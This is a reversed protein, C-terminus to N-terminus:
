SKLSSIKQTVLRPIQQALEDALADAPCLGLLQRWRPLEGDLYFYPEAVVRELHQANCLAEALEMPNTVYAAGKLGRLPSMNLTSGDLMQVVPIGSSYADVSATTINGFFVDCDGLLESMPADTIQLRLSPFDSLDVPCAPHPKFVYNTEPPLSLVAISLWSLIKDNSSSLFDGCVLVNLAKVQSKIPSNTPKRTLLHLFRLAEVEIVQPAPYGGEFYAKKAVPGNVAVLDPIPLFNKGTHIYSRPDYFYRLDWFRVSSHPMGILKGHGAARWAYILSMEWPQNEQIYVGLKQHSIGRLKKEYLSIRLCNLMAGRGRLSDIWEHKFLPWLDLASGAPRFYCSATSLHFSAEWTRFYDKLAKIFVSLNLNAEILAHSQTESSCKNFRGILEQARTVSPILEHCYINHLWNTKLNSQALKGVLSTWYNSIFKGTTFAQRDLHVLIDVFCIGGNMDSVAVQKKRLLPLGKFLYWMFFIFARLPCPLSHYLLRALSRPKGTRKAHNWKFDLILNQCFLQLTYALEKNSSVLVISEAKYKAALDEFVLAKIANDIQSTGSANFKQALSTMWWYSLGPRLELHDIVRKGNIFTEGLEYIWALYRSKLADAQEEVLKPISITSPDTANAFSSWLVTTWDGSPPSGETDWVLLAHQKNQQIALGLSQISQEANKM